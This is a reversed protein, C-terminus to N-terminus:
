SVLFKKRQRSVTYIGCYFIMSQMKIKTVKCNTPDVFIHKGSTSCITKMSLAKGNVFDNQAM